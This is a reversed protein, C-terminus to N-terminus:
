PNNGPSTTNYIFRDIIVSITATNQLRIRTPQSTATGNSISVFKNGSGTFTGDTSFEASVIGDSGTGKTYRVLVHYKTGASMADTSDATLNGGHLAFIKGNNGNISLYGIRGSGDGIWLATLDNGGLAAFQVQFYYYTTDQATQSHEIFDNSSFVRLSQTGELITGTYDENETGNNETWGVNDYGAADFTETFQFSGGGAVVGGIGSGGGIGAGGGIGVQAQVAMAFALFLLFLKKMNNLLSLRREMAM